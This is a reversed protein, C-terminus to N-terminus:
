LVVSVQHVFQLVHVASQSEHQVVKIGHLGTHLLPKVHDLAVQAPCTLRWM